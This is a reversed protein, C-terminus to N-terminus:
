SPFLECELKREGERAKEIKSEAAQAPMTYLLIKIKEIIMIGNATKQQMCIARYNQAEANETGRGLASNNWPQQKNTHSALM